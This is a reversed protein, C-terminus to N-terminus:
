KVSVCRVNGVPGSCTVTLSKGGKHDFNEFTATAKEPAASSAPTATVQEVAVSNHEVQSGSFFVGKVVLATILVTAIVVRATKNVAAAISALIFLVCVLVGLIDRGLTLLTDM